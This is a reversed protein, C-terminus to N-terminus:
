VCVLSCILVSHNLNWNWCLLHNGINSFNLYKRLRNKEEVRLNDYLFDFLDNLNWDFFYNHNFFYNFFYNIYIFNNWSIDRDFFDYINLLDHV